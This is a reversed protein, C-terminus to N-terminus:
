YVALAHWRVNKGLQILELQTTRNFERTALTLLAIHGFQLLPYTDSTADTGRGTFVGQAPHFHMFNKCYKWV